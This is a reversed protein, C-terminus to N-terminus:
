IRFLNVFNDRPFDVPEVTFNLAFNLTLKLVGGVYEREFKFREGFDFDVRLGHVGVSEFINQRLKAGGANFGAGFNQWGGRGFFIGADVYTSQSNRRSKDRLAAGFDGFM